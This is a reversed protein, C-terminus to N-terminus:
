ASCVGQESTKPVVIRGKLYNCLSIGINVCEPTLGNKILEAESIGEFSLLSAQLIEMFQTKNM